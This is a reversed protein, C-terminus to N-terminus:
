KGLYAEMVRQNARVKQPAGDAIIRGCDLVAIEDSIAMVIDMNHEVMVISASDTLKRILKAQRLGETLSMGATPEDLFLIEPEGALAVAVQLLRQDGHSLNDARLRALNELRCRELLALTQEHVRRLSNRSSFLKLSGGIKAQKAIRVNEYVSLNRFLRTIQFTRCIGLQALTHPPKNTIDRGRLLVKGSSAELRGTIVDILTTKGAGNPGILSKLSNSKFEINVENNAILGGFRRCLNNTQLVTTTM